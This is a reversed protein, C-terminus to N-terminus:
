KRESETNLWELWCQYCSKGVQHFHYRCKANQIMECAVCDAIDCIWDALHETTMTRLEDIHNM